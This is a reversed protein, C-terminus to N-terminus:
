WFPWSFKPWGGDAPPLPNFNVPVDSDIKSEDPLQSANWGGGLAEVLAVSTTLRSQQSNVATVADNLAVTQAVIVATYAQTGALYQNNITREAARAAVVAADQARAEQALIREGALQDEVQQFASLVAQRYAAVAADYLARDQELQANRLGGDFVTQALSSGFSWIRSSTTFLKHLRSAEVGTDGSLTIDPYFAAVAVGIQANAAAV